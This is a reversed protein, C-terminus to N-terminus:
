RKITREVQDLATSLNDAPMDDVGKYIDKDLDNPAYMSNFLKHNDRTLQALGKKIENRAFIQLGKNM